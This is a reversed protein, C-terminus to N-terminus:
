DADEQRPIMLYDNDTPPSMAKVAQVLLRRRWRVLWQRRQVGVNRKSFSRPQFAIDAFPEEVSSKMLLERSIM